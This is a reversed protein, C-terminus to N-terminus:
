SFLYYNFFFFGCGLLMTWRDIPQNNVSQFNDSCFPVPCPFVLQALCSEETSAPLAPIFGTQHYLLFKEINDSGQTDKEPQKSQRNWPTSKFIGNRSGNM